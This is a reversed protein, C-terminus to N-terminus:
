NGRARRASRQKLMNADQEPTLGPMGKAIRSASVQDAIKRDRAVAKAEVADRTRRHAEIMEGLRGRAAARDEDTFEPAWEANADAVVGEVTLDPRGAEILAAYSAMPAQYVKARAYKVLADGDEARAEVARALGSVHLPRDGANVAGSAPTEEVIERLRVLLAEQARNV